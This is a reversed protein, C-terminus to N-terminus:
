MGILILDICYQDVSLELYIIYQMNWMDGKKTEIANKDHENLMFNYM